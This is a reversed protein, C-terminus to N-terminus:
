YGSRVSMTNKKKKKKNTAARAGRKPKPTSKPKAKGYNM